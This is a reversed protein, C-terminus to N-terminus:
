EEITLIFWNLKRGLFSESHLLINRNFVPFLFDTLVSLCQSFEFKVLRLILFFSFIPLSVDTAVDRADEIIILLDQLKGLFFLFIVTEDLPSFENFLKCFLLPNHAHFELADLFLDGFSDVVILGNFHLISANQFYKFAM